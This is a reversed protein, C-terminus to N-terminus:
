QRNSRMEFALRWALIMVALQVAAFVLAPIPVSDFRASSMSAEYLLMAIWLALLGLIGVILRHVLVGAIMTCMIVAMGLLLAVGISSMGAWVHHMLWYGVAILALVVANLAVVIRIDRLM